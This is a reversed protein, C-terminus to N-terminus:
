RRLDPFPQVDGDQIGLNNEPISGPLDFTGGMTPSLFADGKRSMKGPDGVPQFVEKDM